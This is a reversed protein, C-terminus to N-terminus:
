HFDRSPMPLGALDLSCDQFHGAVLHVLDGERELRGKVRLLRAHLVQARFREQVARWVVLNINGMEDELTLFLTGKASGPRQRGTVLGAVQVFAGHHLGALEASTRCKRYDPFSRLLSMPHRRLSLGTALYDAKIEELEAPLPMLIADDEGM